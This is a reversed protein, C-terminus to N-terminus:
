QEARAPPNKVDAPQGAATQKAGSAVDDPKADILEYVNIRAIYENCVYIRNTLPDIAIGSPIDFYELKRAFGGFFMLPQFQKDFLQVNSHDGDVVYLNGFSDFALGKLRAFTGPADGNEGYKRKFTGSADFVQIRFNMTDAVYVDGNSPDVAIYTPFYWQGDEEGKGPRGEKAGLDRLWQGGLDFVRVRHNESKRKSSDSVYLLKRRPDVAIGTPRELQQAGLSRLLQGARSFVRVVAGNTDSVYVNEEADLAVNFAKGVPEDGAFLRLERASFDAVLVAGLGYDAIYLRKGDASVAVGMPQGLIPDNSGGFVSRRVSAWASSDLDDTHRFAQVFRIRPPDPPDPWVVPKVPAHSCALASALVFLQLPRTV